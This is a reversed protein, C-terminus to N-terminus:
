AERPGEGPGVGRDLEGEGDTQLPFDVWFSSPANAGTDVGVRGGHLEAIRKVLSLGLGSGRERPPASTSGPIRAFEQFLKDRHEAAIGPGGDVM